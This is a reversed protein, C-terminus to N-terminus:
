ATRQGEKRFGCVSCCIKHIRMQMEVLFPDLIRTSLQEKSFLESQVLSRVKKSM